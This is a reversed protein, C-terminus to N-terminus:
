FTLTSAASYRVLKPPVVHTSTSAVEVGADAKGEYIDYWM